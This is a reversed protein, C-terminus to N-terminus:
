NQSFATKCIATLLKLLESIDAMLSDHQSKTLYNTLYLLKIWYETESAEKLAINMKAAFDATTQGRLAEAINAGISTGCRLIQKSMTYERKDESLFNHLNVIRVSFALSKEAVISYSM